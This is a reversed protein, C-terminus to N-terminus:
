VGAMVHLARLEPDDIHRRVQYAHPELYDNPAASLDQRRLEAVVQACIRDVRAANDGLTAMGHPAALLAELDPRIRRGLEFSDLGRLVWKYYPTYHGDLLYACASVHEAFRALALVAAGEEGHELARVYNYQGSQAAFLLHASLKKLRVDHPYQLLITRIRSFEGLDDQWVVGNTAEALYIEDLALWQRWHTPVADGVYPRYFDSIRMVGRYSQSDMGTRRLHVGMFEAPLHLYATQLAQGFLDYDSDTLWMCFGPAYDHDRSVDDDFGFCESGHGVLGVAIRDRYAGFQAEIM